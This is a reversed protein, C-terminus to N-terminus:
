EGSLADREALKEVKAACTIDNESLAGIAHTTYRVICQRYGVEMIPHHDEQRALEAVRNVFQMVQDYDRFRFARELWAGNQRWHPLVNLYAEIQAQSLAPTQGTCADCRRQALSDTSAAM